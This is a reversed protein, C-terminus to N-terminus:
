LLIWEPITSFVTGFISNNVSISNRCGISQFNTPTFVPSIGPPHSVIIIWYNTIITIISICVAVVICCICLAFNGAELMEAITWLKIVLRCCLQITSLLMVGIHNDILASNYFAIGITATQTISRYCLCTIDITASIDSDKTTLNLLIDISSTTGSTNIVEKVSIIKSIAAVLKDSCGVGIDLTTRRTVDITTTVLSVYTVM